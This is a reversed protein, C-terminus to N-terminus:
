NNWKHTSSFAAFHTTFSRGFRSSLDCLSRLCYLLPTAFLLNALARNLTLTLSSSSFGLFLGFFSPFLALFLASPWDKSRPNWPIPENGGVQSKEFGVELLAFCFLM